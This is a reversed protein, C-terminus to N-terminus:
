TTKQSKKKSWNSYKKKGNVTIYTRIRVYYKRKAKLKKITTSTTKAKKITIKKGKKFKSSTSYQIQYGNVNKIKKWTVKLSKKGKNISKIKTSSPSQVDNSNQTTEAKQSITKHTTQKETPEATTPQEIPKTTTSETTDNAVDERRLEISYDTNKPLSTYINGQEDRWRIEQITCSNEGTKISRCTPLEYDLLLNTPTKVHSIEGSMFDTMDAVNSIDFNSIDLSKLESDVCFMYQMYMVNCTNFSGVDVKMLNPCAYFMYSMDTVQSTNFNSLNIETLNHCYGFMWNMDTVNRTDFNSIDLSALDSWSFMGSMNTVNKTDFNSIDLSILHMGSFMGNMNIVNRTDFDSIDLKELGCSYFMYSMDTVQSTNFNSLDLKKLSWCSAFMDSMNTVQSTDFGSLDLTSLNTCAMFMRSTSTIESVNIKASTIKDEYYSWATKYTDWAEDYVLEYDGKGTITLLGDSDISWDLDGSKGSYLIITEANVVIEEISFLTIVLCISILISWVSRFKM